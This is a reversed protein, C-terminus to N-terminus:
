RVGCAGSGTCRSRWGTGLNSTRRSSRGTWRQGCTTTSRRWGTWGRPPNRGGGNRRPGSPWPWSTARRAGASRCRGRRVRRAAGIRVDRITELMRYRPEDAAEDLRLLSKDVLSAVLELVDGERGGLESGIAEAADLSFGGQFLALSRFLRQEDTDLLDYSWTMADRLTRLRDPMDRAGGTLFALRQELRTLIAPLPLHGVRAAALEIALPLGDLRACIAAVTAANSETLVFDPRAARARDLFLRVADASAIQDLSADDSGAALRLPSIPLDHEASLHLVTQSTALITLRPCATLLDAVLPAADPLQELNDLVLLVQRQRLFDVLREALPRSGMDGLGLARAITPLFVDADRITALPVFHVGDAFDDQLDAAVQLALRTKGVGGPGTLTLLPIPEDLLLARAATRETERGILRTRPIPLSGTSSSPAPTVM